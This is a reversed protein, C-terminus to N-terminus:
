KKITLLDVSSAFRYANYYGGVTRLHTPVQIHCKCVGNKNGLSIEHIEYSTKSWGAVWNELCSFTIYVFLLYVYIVHPKVENLMLSM